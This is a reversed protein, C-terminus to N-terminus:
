EVARFGLGTLIRITPLRNRDDVEISGLYLGVSGDYFVRWRDIEGIGSVIVDLKKNPDRAARGSSLLDLLLDRAGGVSTPGGNEQACAWRLAEADSRGRLFADVSGMARVTREFNDLLNM